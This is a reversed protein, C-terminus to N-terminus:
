CKLVGYRKKVGYGERKSPTVPLRLSVMRKPVYRAKQILSNVIRSRLSFHHSAINSKPFIKERGSFPSIASNM